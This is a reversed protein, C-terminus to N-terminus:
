SLIGLKDITAAREPFVLLVHLEGCFMEDQASFGDLTRSGFGGGVHEVSHPLAVINSCHNEQLVAEGARADDHDVRMDEPIRCEFIDLEDLGGDHHFFDRAQGFLVRLNGGDGILLGEAESVRIAVLVRWCGFQGWGNLVGRGCLDGHDQATVPVGVRGGCDVIEEGFLAEGCLVGVEVAAVVAGEGPHSHGMFKGELRGVGGDFVLPWEGVVYGMENAHEVVDPEGGVGKSDGAQQAFDVWVVELAYGAEGVEVEWGVMERQHRFKADLLLPLDLAHFSIEPLATRLISQAPPSFLPPFGSEWLCRLSKILSPSQRSSDGLITPTVSLQVLCVNCPLLVTHPKPPEIMDLRKPLYAIPQKMQTRADSFRLPHM